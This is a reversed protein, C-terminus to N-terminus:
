IGQQISSTWNQKELISQKGSSWIWGDWSDTRNSREVPIDWLLELTLANCVLADGAEGGFRRGKRQQAEKKAHDTSSKKGDRM